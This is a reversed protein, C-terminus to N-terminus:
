HTLSRMIPKFFFFFDAVSIKDKCLAPNLSLKNYDIVIPLCVCVICVKHKGEAEFGNLNEYLSHHRKGLLPASPINASTPMPKESLGRGKDRQDESKRLEQPTQELIQTEQRSQMNVHPPTQEPPKPRTWLDYM